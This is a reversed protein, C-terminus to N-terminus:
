RIFPIRQCCHDDRPKKIAVQSRTFGGDEQAGNIDGVTMNLEPASELFAEVVADNHRSEEVWLEGDTGHEQGVEHEGGWKETRKFYPLVEEWSWGDLGLAGWADYDRSNGRVYLMYNLM